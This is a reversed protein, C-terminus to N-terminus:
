YILYIFLRCDFFATSCDWIQLWELQADASFARADLRCHQCCTRKGFVQFTVLDHSPRSRFFAKLEIPRSAAERELRQESVARTAATPGAPTAQNVIASIQPLIIGIIFGSTHLLFGSFVVVGRVAADMVGDLVEYIALQQVIIPRHNRLPVGWMTFSIRTRRVASSACPSPLPM